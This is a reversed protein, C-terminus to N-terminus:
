EKLLAAQEVIASYKYGAGFDKDAALIGEVTVVEGMGPTAETTVV